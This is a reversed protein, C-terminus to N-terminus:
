MVEISEILEVQNIETFKNTIKNTTIHIDNVEKSVTEISKHLKDWRTKYRQFEVSLMTLQQHIVNTYEDRKINKMIIQLTTLTSILTTPSTIWVRKKYAYEIIDEFYANLTAFIAEAPLFMIAQDSTEKEIIYKNSIDDIHKKIDSKFKKEYIKKAEDTITKQTMKKYNELPFKSDIAILGLPQPAYLVCDAIAKTKFTFQMKYVTEKEGFINSMITKLNVEGFIGRTKKDTLVGQLNVIDSSIADIKKQAEDIKTLREILSQFTKNTKQFNDDIKTNVKQDILRLQHEIKDNLKSFDSTIDKTFSTKFNSIDKTINTEFSAIDKNLNKELKNINILTDNNQNKILIIILNIILLTIIIYDMNDGLKM